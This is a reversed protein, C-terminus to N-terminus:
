WRTLSGNFSWRESRSGMLLYKPKRSRFDMLAFWTGNISYKRMGTWIESRNRSGTSFRYHVQIIRSFSYKKPYRFYKLPALIKLLYYNRLTNFSFHLIYFFYIFFSRFPLFFLESFVRYSFKLITRVM